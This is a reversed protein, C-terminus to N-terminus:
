SFEAPWRREKGEEKFVSLCHLIKSSSNRALLPDQNTWDFEAWLLLKCSNLTSRLGSFRGRAVILKSLWLVPSCSPQMFDVTKAIAGQQSATKSSM